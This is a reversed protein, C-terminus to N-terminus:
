YYRIFQGWNWLKINHSEQSINVFPSKEYMYEYKPVQWIFDGNENVCIVNENDTNYNDQHFLIVVLKTFSVIKGIPYEFERIISDNKLLKRNEFTWKM